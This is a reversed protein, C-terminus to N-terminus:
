TPTREVELTIHFARNAELLLREVGAILLEQDLALENRAFAILLEQAAGVLARAILEVEIPRQTGSAGQAALAAGSVVDVLAGILERRRQEIAPSVGVMEVFLIRARAPDDTLSHVIVRAASRIAGDLDTTVRAISPGSAEVLDAVITETLTGLLAEKDTFSEYFYRETLGAERCVDRVKSAHFGRTAFVELAAALLRERRVAVRQELTQERWSRERSAAVPQQNVNVTTLSSLCQCRSNDFATADLSSEHAYPACM